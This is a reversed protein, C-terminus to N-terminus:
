VSLLNHIPLYTKLNSLNYDKTQLFIKTDNESTVNVFNFNSAFNSWATNPSNTYSGTNVITQSSSTPTDKLIVNEFTLNYLGTNMWNETDQNPINNLQSNYEIFPTYFHSNKVHLTKFGSNRSSASAGGTLINLKLSCDKIFLECERNRLNLLLSNAANKTIANNNIYIKRGSYNNMDTDILRPITFINGTCNKIVTEGSRYSEVGNNARIISDQFYTPCIASDLQFNLNQNNLFLVKYNKDMTVAGLQINYVSYDPSTPSFSPVGTALIQTTGTNFGIVWPSHYNSINCPTTTINKLVHGRHGEGSYEAVTSPSNDRIFNKSNGEYNFNIIDLENLTNLYHCHEVVLDPTYIGAWSIICEYTGSTPYGSPLTSVDVVFKNGSFENFWSNGSSLIKFGYINSGNKLWAYLNIGFDNWDAFSFNEDSNEIIYKSGDVSVNVNFKYTFPRGSYKVNCNRSIYRGGRNKTMGVGGFITFPNVSEITSNVVSLINKINVGPSCDYRIAQYFGSKPTSSGKITVNNLFIRKLDSSNNTIIASPGDIGFGRSSVVSSPGEIILNKFGLQGKELNIFNYINSYRVKLLFRQNINPDQTSLDDGKWDEHAIKIKSSGNGIIEIISNTRNDNILLSHHQAGSLDQKTAWDQTMIPNILYNGSISIGKKNSSIVNQIDNKLNNYNNTGIYGTKNTVNQLESLPDGLRKGNTSTKNGVTAIGSNVSLIYGTWNIKATTSYTNYIRAKPISIIKDVDSSNFARNATVNNGSVTFTLEELDSIMSTNLLDHSPVSVSIISWNSDTKEPLNNFDRIVNKSPAVSKVRYYYTVGANPISDFHENYPGHMVELTNSFDSSSSRELIYFDADEVEDWKLRIFMSNNEVISFNSPSQLQNVILVDDTTINISFEDSDLYGVATAVVKINYTTNSSLSIKTFTNSVSNQELVDNIFFKYNTANLVTNVTISISNTTKSSTLLTPTDLKPISSDTIFNLEDFDSDLYNNNTDIAKCKITYHTNPTLSSLNITETDELQLNNDLYWVYHTANTISNVNFSATTEDISLDIIIPKELKEKLTSFIEGSLDSNEVNIDDSVAICEIVYETNPSLSSLNLVASTELQLNSDVYWIYSQANNSNASIFLTNSTSELLTIIPADLKSIAPTTVSITSESNNFGVSKAVVKILYETEPFVSFGFSLSSTNGIYVDNVYIDYENAFLVKEWAINIANPLLGSVNILTEDLKKNEVNVNRYKYNHIM